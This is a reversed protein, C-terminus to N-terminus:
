WDLIEEPLMGDALALFGLCCMKGDDNLLCSHGNPGRVWKSRDIVLEM